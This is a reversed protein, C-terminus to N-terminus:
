AEANPTMAEEDVPLILTFTTGVGVQSKVELKGGNNEMIGYSISLGLGTGDAKTTFFPDFIRNINEEPIGCGTDKVEVRVHGDDDAMDSCLTLDGGEPMAHCANLLLNVLVQQIQAPDAIVDPLDPSLNKTININLLCPHQHMLAFVTELRGNISFAEKHAVTERSFELLRKVIDACRSTESIVRELDAKLEPHLRKDGNVISSFLLIGTLPNNIEHAIGAVLQGLSALKDSRYLQAQIREIERSRDEVKHELSEGWEKLEEHAKQLSETMLNVSESLDGLEDRSEIPVRVDLNGAAVQATHRVLRQVPRNVLKQTLFTILVGILLLLVCTMIIFQWRYEHSKQLLSDLSITIDLVGLINYVSNHFHCSATSCNPRNYIAKTLGLVEKGGSTTFQRSRHMSSAYLRPNGSKHCIICAEANKTMVMGIEQRTTSYVVKGERDILRIHEISRSEAIHDIMMYLQDKDNKMMADYTSQNIVEAIQEANSVAYETMINRFYSLNISDLTWMFGVLILSTAITFKIILSLRFRMTCDKPRRRNYRFVHRM